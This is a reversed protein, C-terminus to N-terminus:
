RKNLSKKDKSNLWIKIKKNFLALITKKIM